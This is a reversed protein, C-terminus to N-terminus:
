LKYFVKLSHYKLLTYHIYSIFLIADDLANIIERPPSDLTYNFMAKEMDCYQNYRIVAAQALEM